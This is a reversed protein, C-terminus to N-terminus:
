LKSIANKLSLKIHEAMSIAKEADLGSLKEKIEKEIKKIDLADEIQKKIIDRAVEKALGGEYGKQGFVENLEEDLIRDITNIDMMASRIFLTIKLTDDTEYQVLM